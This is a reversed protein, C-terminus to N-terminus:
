GLFRIVDQADARLAAAVPEPLPSFPDRVVQGAPM